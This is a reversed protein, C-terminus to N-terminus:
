RSQPDGGAGAIPMIVGNGTFSLIARHLGALNLQDNRGDEPRIQVGWLAFPSLMMFQGEETLDGQDEEFHKDTVRYEFSVTRLAHAFTWVSEDRQNFLHSVGLHQLTVTATADPDASTAGDLFCRVRRVLPAEINAFPRSPPKNRNLPLAIWVPRGQKLLEIQSPDRM